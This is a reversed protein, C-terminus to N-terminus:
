ESMGAYHEKLERYKRNYYKEAYIAQIENLTFHDISLEENINNNNEKLIDETIDIAHKLNTNNHEKCKYIKKRKPQKIKIHITILLVIKIRRIIIVM